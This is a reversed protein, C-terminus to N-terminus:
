PRLSMGTGARGQLWWVATINGSSDMQGGRWENVLGQRHAQTVSTDGCCESIERRTARQGLHQPVGWGKGPGYWCAGAQAVTHQRQMVGDAAAAAEYTKSGEAAASGHTPQQRRLEGAQLLQLM